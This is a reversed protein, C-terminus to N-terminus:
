GPVVGAGDCRDCHARLSEIGYCEPCQVPRPPAITPGVPAGDGAIVQIAAALEANHLCADPHMTEVEIRKRNDGLREVLWRAGHEDVVLRVRASAQVRNAFGLFVGNLRGSEVM